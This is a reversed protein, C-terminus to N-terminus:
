KAEKNCYKERLLEIGYDKKANAVAMNVEYFEDMVVKSYKTVRELEEKTANRLMMTALLESISNLEDAKETRAPKNQKELEKKIGKLETVIESLAKETPTKM